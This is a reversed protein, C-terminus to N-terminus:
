VRNLLNLTLDTFQLIVIWIKDSIAAEYRIFKM